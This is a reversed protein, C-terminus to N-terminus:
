DLFVDFVCQKKKSLSGKKGQLEETCQAHVAFQNNSDCFHQVAAEIRNVKDPGEGAEKECAKRLGHIAVCRLFRFFFSKVAESNLRPLTQIVSRDATGSQNVHVAVGSMRLMRLMNMPPTQRLAANGCTVEASYVGSINEIMSVHDPNMLNMESDFLFEM